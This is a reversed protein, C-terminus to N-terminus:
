KGQSVLNSRRIPLLQSEQGDIAEERGNADVFTTPRHEPFPEYGRYCERRKRYSKPLRFGCTSRRASAPDRIQIGIIAGDLVGAEKYAVVEVSSLSTSRSGCSLRVKPM